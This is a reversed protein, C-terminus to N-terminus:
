EQINHIFKTKHNLNTGIFKEYFFIRKISLVNRQHFNELSMRGLPFSSTALKISEKWDNM